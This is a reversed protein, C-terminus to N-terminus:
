PTALSYTMMGGDYRVAASGCPARRTSFAQRIWDARTRLLTELREGRPGSALVTCIPGGSGVPSGPPSRDATWDPWILGAPAETARDSFVVLSGASRETAVSGTLVGDRCAAVHLAFLNLGLATGYADLSGGPRPNLELVRVTDGAVLADVSALGRLGCHVALALAARELRQRAQPSLQAPVAVGGFRFRRGPLPVTLQRGMGLVRAQEGNGLVLASVPMGSSWRQWYWGRGSPPRPGARRVHGGGAGGARKILWGAPHRPRVLRSEPHDIQLSALMAQWAMPDKVARVTAAANGLLERGHSLEELLRPAAEFGSGWVLATPPPALRRAAALLAGRRLRWAADVPVRCWAQAAARTDLDGFADLVIPAFGAARAAQALSRGSLACILVPEPRRM